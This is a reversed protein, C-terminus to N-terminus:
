YRRSQTKFRTIARLSRLLLVVMLALLAICALFAFFVDRERGLQEKVFFITPDYRFFEIELEAGPQHKEEDFLTRLQLLGTHNRGHDDQFRYIINCIGNYEEEVLEITGISTQPAAKILGYRIATIHNLAILFLLLLIVFSLVINKNYLFDKEM